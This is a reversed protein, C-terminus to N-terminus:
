LGTHQASGIRKTIKKPSLVKKYWEMMCNSFFAYQTQIVTKSEIRNEKKEKQMFM